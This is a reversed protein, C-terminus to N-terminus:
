LSPVWYLTHWMLSMNQTLFVQPNLRSSISHTSPYSSHETIRIYHKNFRSTLEIDINSGNVKLLLNLKPLIAIPQKAPPTSKPVLTFSWLRHIRSLNPSESPSAHWLSEAPLKGHAQSAHKCQPILLIFAGINILVMWCGVVVGPLPCTSKTRM